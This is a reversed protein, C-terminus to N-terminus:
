LKEAVQSGYCYQGESGNTYRATGRLAQGETHNDAGRWVNTGIVETITCESGKPSLRIASVRWKISLLSIDRVGDLGIGAAAGGSSREQVAEINQDLVRSQISYGV